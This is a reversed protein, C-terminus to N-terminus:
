GERVQYMNGGTGIRLVSPAKDKFFKIILRLPVSSAFGISYSEPVLKKQSNIVSAKCYVTISKTCQTIYRKATIDTKGGKAKKRNNQFIVGGSLTDAAGPKSSGKGKIGLRTAVREDILVYHTHKYPKNKLNKGETLGVYFPLLNKKGVGPKASPASTM